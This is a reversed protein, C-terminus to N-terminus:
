FSAATTAANNHQDVGSIKFGQVPLCLNFAHRTPADKPNLPSSPIPISVVLPVVSAPTNNAGPVRYLTSVGQNNDAVWFPSAASETIGWPNVLNPDIVAAGQLIGNRDILNRVDAVLDTILVVPNSGTETQGKAALNTELYGGSTSATPNGRLSAGLLGAPALHFGFTRM